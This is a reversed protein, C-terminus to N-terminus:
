SMVEGTDAIRTVYKKNGNKGARLKILADLVGHLGGKVVEYPHGKLKGENVMVELIKTMVAGFLVGGAPKDDHISGVWIQEAWGGWQDLVSRQEPSIGTTCTYRGEPSLNPLLYKTSATSNTADFAHHIKKGGLANTIDDKISPSRYDLIIDAGNEQAFAANSGAIGIIPAISKNMGALKLAFTGVAGSAGNIILPTKEIKAQEDVRDFPTPLKLNRWLGVAATYAALPITAAEEDGMSDPIHFVTHEPCVTYDAYTGRPTDMQHFGAVRDGPKFNRVKSGVAEVIGACDDGQNVHVNFYNPMPHKWDKPNSGAVSVKILVEGQGYEPIPIDELKTTFNPDYHVILNKM